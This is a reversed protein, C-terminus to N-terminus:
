ELELLTDLLDDDEIVYERCEHILELLEMKDHQIFYEITSQISTKIKEDELRTKKLHIVKLM